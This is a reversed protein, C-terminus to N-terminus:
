TGTGGANRVKKQLETELPGVRVAVIWSDTIDGAPKEEPEWDSEEIVLEM